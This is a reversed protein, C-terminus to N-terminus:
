RKHFHYLKTKRFRVVDRIKEVALVVDQMVEDHSLRLVLYGSILLEYDRQRDASFAPRKSHVQYGDIEVVIHGAKWLLDVLYRSHRVTHVTANCQFLPSLEPDSALRAALLQEGPSFPHPRGHIPWVIGKQQETDEDTTPTQEPAVTASPSLRIVDYLVTELEAHEALATPLLLAIRAGTAQRLWVLARALGYLHFPPPQSDDIALLIVLHNPEIAAALQAFQLDHPFRTLRPLKGQRCEDAAAQLWALSLTPLQVAMQTQWHHLLAHVQTDVNTTVTFRNIASLDELGYWRPWLGLAVQALHDLLDSVLTEQPPLTRWRQVIIKYNIPPQTEDGQEVALQATELTALADDITECILTRGNSNPTDRLLQEIVLHSEEENIL